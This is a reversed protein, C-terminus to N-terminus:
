RRKNTKLTEALAVGEYTYGGKNYAPAVRMAKEKIARQTEPSEKDLTMRDLIGPKVTAHGIIDSVHVGCRDEYNLDSSPDYKESKNKVLKRTKPKSIKEIEL